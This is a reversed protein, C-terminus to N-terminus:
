AADTPAGLWARLEDGWADEPEPEAPPPPAPEPARPRRAAKAARKSTPRRDEPLSPQRGPDPAPETVVEGPITPPRSAALGVAVGQFRRVLEQAMRAMSAGMAREQDDEGILDATPTSQEDPRVPPLQGSAAQVIEAPYGLDAMQAAVQQTVLAEIRRAAQLDEARARGGSGAYGGHHKCRAAGPIAWRRCPEGSHHALAGCKTPPPTRRRVKDTM